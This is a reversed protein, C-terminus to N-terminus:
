QATGLKQADIREALRLLAQGLEKAQTGSMHIQVARQHANPTESYEVRVLGGMPMTAIQWGTLPVATLNGDPNTDWDKM